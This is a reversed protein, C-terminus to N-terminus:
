QGPRVLFPGVVAPRSAKPAEVKLRLSLQQDTGNGIDARSDWVFTHPKGSPSSVVGTPLEGTAALTAPKWTKGGDDSYEAVIPCSVSRANWLAYPVSVTGDPAVHIQGTTRIFIMEPDHEDAGMDTVPQTYVQM